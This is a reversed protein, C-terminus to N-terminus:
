DTHHISYSKFWYSNSSLVSKGKAVIALGAEPRLCLGLWHKGADGEWLGYRCLGEVSLERPDPESILQQLNVQRRCM